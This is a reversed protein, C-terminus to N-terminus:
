APSKASPIPLKLEKLALKLDEWADKKAPPNRLLYAPHFTPILKAGRFPFTRGRLNSITEETALLTQAAFKGLAVIVEPRITDIQRFLFPSCAAIEDPEPNRNEPPRCKVVNAIFVDERQLGMGEIMKTLLQGSRGVFPRGELVEQEGPAEGIFLLRAKANGEGFVIHTRDKCLKCRPCGALDAAIEPLAGPSTPKSLSNSLSISPPKKGKKVM